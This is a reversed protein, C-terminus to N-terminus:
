NEKMEIFVKLQEVRTSIKKEIGNKNDQSYKTSSSSNCKETPSVTNNVIAM